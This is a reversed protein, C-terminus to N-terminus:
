ANGLHNRWGEQSGRRTSLSGQSRFDTNLHEGYIENTKSMKNEVIEQVAGEGFFQMNEKLWNFLRDTYEDDKEKPYSLPEYVAQNM